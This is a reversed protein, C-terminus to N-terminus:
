KKASIFMKDTEKKLSKIYKLTDWGYMFVNNKVTRVAWEWYRFHENWNSLLRLQIVMNWTNSKVLGIEYELTIKEM